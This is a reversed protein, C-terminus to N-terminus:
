FVGDGTLPSSARYVSKRVDEIVAAQTANLEKLTQIEADRSKEIESRESILNSIQLRCDTIQSKFDAIQSKFDAIEGQLETVKFRSNSLDGVTKAFRINSQDIVTSLTRNREILDPRSYGRGVISGFWASLAAIAIGVLPLLSYFLWM